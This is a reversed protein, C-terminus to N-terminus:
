ESYFNGIVVEAPYILGWDQNRKCIYKLATLLNPECIVEFNTNQNVKIYIPESFNVMRDNFRLTFETVNTTEVEFRNNGLNKAHMRSAEEYFTTDKMASFSNFHELTYVPKVRNVNEKTIHDVMIRGPVYENITCWYWDPTESAKFPGGQFRMDRYEYKGSPTVAIVEIPADTRKRNVIFCSDNGYFFTRSIDVFSSDILNVGNHGGSTEIYKSDYGYADLVEKLYRAHIVDTMHARNDQPSIYYSDYKGHWIFVPTNILVDFPANEWSSGGIGIASIRDWTTAVQIAGIGGMSYGRIVIKAPNINFLYSCERVIDSLYSIVGPTAWRDAIKDQVAGEPFNIGHTAEPGVYIYEGIKEYENFPYQPMKRTLNEGEQYFGGGHLFILLGIASDPSYTTPIYMNMNPNENRENLLPMSFDIGRLEVGSILGMSELQSVPLGKPRVEEIISDINRICARLSDEYQTKASDDAKLWNSATRVADEFTITNVLYNHKIEASNLAYNFFKVEDIQGNYSKGTCAPFLGVGGVVLFYPNTVSSTISIKKSKILDGNLYISIDGKEKDITVVINNWQNRIVSQPIINSNVSVREEDAFYKFKIRNDSTLTIGYGRYGGSLKSILFEVTDIPSEKNYWLSISFSNDKMDLLENDGAMLYEDIGNLKIANFFKGDIIASDLNLNYPILKNGEESDIVTDAHITEFSWHVLVDSQSMLIVRTILFIVIFFNRM